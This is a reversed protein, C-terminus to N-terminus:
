KLLEEILRGQSYPTKFGLIKGITPSLDTQNYATSVVKGKAFDPGIALLEIHRCGYCNDGHNIFGNSVNDDHRGHDNTVLLTTKGAYYKEQQLYKWILGVYYDTSQIGQIYANWNGSHGANDPEKFQILALNPHNKSLNSLANQFTTADVRYGSHPGSTGCDMEPQFKNTWTANKCNSLVWLKDKSAIIQCKSAPLNKEKLYYQFISPYTPLTSGGNDINEVFGTTIACHGPNTVTYGTNKFNTFLVGNKAILNRNPILPRGSLDWTEQYRPGDVVIIIVRESTYKNALPADTTCTELSVSLLLAFLIKIKM